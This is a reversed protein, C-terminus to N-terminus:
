GDAVFPWGGYMAFKANNWSPFKFLDGLRWNDARVEAVAVVQQVYVVLLHNSGVLEEEGTQGTFSSQKGTICVFSVHLTQCAVPNVAVVFPAYMVVCLPSNVM